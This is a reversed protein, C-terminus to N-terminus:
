CVKALASFVPEAPFHSGFSSLGVLLSASSSSQRQSGAPLLGERKLLRDPSQLRLAEVHLPWPNSTMEKAPWTSRSCLLSFHKSPLFILPPAAAKRRCLLAGPAPVPRAPLVPVLRSRLARLLGPSPVRPLVSSSLFRSSLWPSLKLLSGRLSCGWLGAVDRPLSSLSRASLPVPSLLLPAWILARLGGAGTLAARGARPAGAAWFSGPPGM